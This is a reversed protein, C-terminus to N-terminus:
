YVNRLGTLMMVAKRWCDRKKKFDEKSFRYDHRRIFDEVDDALKAFRAIHITLLRRRLEPEHSANLAEILHQACLGGSHAVAEQAQCDDLMALFTELYRQRSQNQIKCAPCLDDRMWTEPIKKRKIRGSLGNLFDLFLKVQDNYLIATGLADSFELLMHAHRHCFGRSAILDRRVGADNVCEYLLNELYRNITREELECLACGRAKQFGELVEFYTIHKQSDQM